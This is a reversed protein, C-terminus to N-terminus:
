DRRDSAYDLMVSSLSVGEKEALRECHALFTAREFGQPERGECIRRALARTQAHAWGEWTAQIM